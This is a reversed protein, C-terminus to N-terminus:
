PVAKPSDFAFSESVSDEREPADSRMMSCTHHTTGYL